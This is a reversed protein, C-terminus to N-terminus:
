ATLFPFATAVSGEGCFSWAEIMAKSSSEAAAVDVLGSSSIVRCGPPSDLHNTYCMGQEPLTARSLVCILQWGLISGALVNSFASSSAASCADTSAACCASVAYCAGMSCCASAASSAGVCAAIACCAVACAAVACDAVARDATACDAPVACAAACIVTCIAAASDVATSSIALASTACQPYLFVRTLM